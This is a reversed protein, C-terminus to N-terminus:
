AAKRVLYYTGKRDVFKYDAKGEIPGMAVMAEIKSGLNFANHVKGLVDDTTLANDGVDKVIRVGEAGKVQEMLRKFEATGLKQQVKITAM